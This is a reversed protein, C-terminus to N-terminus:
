FLRSFYFFFRMVLNQVPCPAFIPPTNRHLNSTYQWYNESWNYPNPTGSCRGNKNLPFKRQRFEKRNQSTKSRGKRRGKRPVKEGRKEREFLAGHQLAFPVACLKSLPLKLSREVFSPFSIGERFRRLFLDTGLPGSSVSQHRPAFIAARCNKDRM